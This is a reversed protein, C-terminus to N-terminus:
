FSKITKSTIKEKKNQYMAKDAISILEDLGVPNVPNFEALGFSFSLNYPKSITNNIEELKKEIVRCVYGCQALSSDPLIVLFEDGGMRCITDSERLNEKFIGVVQLIFFDGEQHGFTDNILKLNDLDVFCITFLTTNRNSRAIEKELLILGIRRNYVGTMTDTAAYYELEEKSKQLDAEIKKRKRIENEMRKIYRLDQCVFILGIIFGKKNTIKSRYLKVPIKVKESIIIHVDWFQYQKKFDDYQIKELFLDTIPFSPLKPWSIKLLNQASKNILLINLDPDTLFIYDQINSIIKDAAIAPTPSMLQYYRIAYVMGGMWILGLIPAILPIIRINLVPLIVDTITALTFGIGSTIMIISFQKKEIISAHKIKWYFVVAITSFLFSFIYVIYMLSWVSHYNRIEYTTGGIHVFDIPTIRGALALIVFLVAPSYIFIYIIHFRNDKVAKTLHLAFHIALTPFLCWGLSAIRVWIELKNRDTEPYIFTNGFAWIFLSLSLILFIRNLSGKKNEIYVSIGLWAYFISAFFSLLSYYNM